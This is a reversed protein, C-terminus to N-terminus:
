SQLIPCEIDNHFTNVNTNNISSNPPSSLVLHQLLTHEQKYHKLMIYEINQPRRKSLKIWNSYKCQVGVTCCTGHKCQIINTKMVNHWAMTAYLVNCSLLKKEFSLSIILILHFKRDHVFIFLFIINNIIKATDVVINAHIIVM